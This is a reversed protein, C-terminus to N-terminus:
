RWSAALGLYGLSMGRKAGSEGSSPVAQAIGLADIYPTISFGNRIAIDWGVGLALAGGRNELRRAGGPPIWTSDFRGSGIGGKLFFGSTVSPYFQTTFLVWSSRRPTEDPDGGWGGFEGSLVFRPSVAGGFRVMIVGGENKIEGCDDCTLKGTASGIGVSAHFGKHGQTGQASVSGLAGLAIGITAALLQRM